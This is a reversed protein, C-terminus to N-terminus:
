HSYFHKSSCRWATSIKPTLFCGSKGRGPSLMRSDHLVSQCASSQLPSCELRGRLGRTRASNLLQLALLFLKSLLLHTSTRHSTWPFLPSSGVDNELLPPLVLDRGLHISSSQSGQSKLWPLPIAFTTDPWSPLTSFGAAGHFFRIQSIQPPFKEDEVGRQMTMIFGPCFEMFPQLERLTQPDRSM